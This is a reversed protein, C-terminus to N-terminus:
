KKENGGRGDETSGDITSPKDFFRDTLDKLTPTLEPEFLISQKVLAEFLEPERRLDPVTDLLYEYLERGHDEIFQKEWKTLKRHPKRKSKKKKM